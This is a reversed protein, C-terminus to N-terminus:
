KKNSRSRRSSRSSGRSNHSRRSSRSSRSSSHKKSSNRNHRKGGLLNPSWTPNSALVNSDEYPQSTFQHFRAETDPSYSGVPGRSYQSMIWDSSGGASQSHRHRHSKCHKHSKSRKTSKTGKSRNKRSGGTTQSLNVSNMSNPSLTSSPVFDYNQLPKDLNSMVLESALSGGAMGCSSCGTMNVMKLNLNM